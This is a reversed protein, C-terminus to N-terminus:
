ITIKGMQVKDWLNTHIKVKHAAYVDDYADEGALQEYKASLYQKKKIKTLLEKDLKTVQKQKDTMESCITDVDEKIQAEEDEDLILRIKDAEITYLNDKICTEMALEEATNVLFDGNTYVRWFAEPDDEDYVVAMEEITEELVMIYYSLEQLSIEQDDIEVATEDLHESFVFDSNQEYQYYSLRISGILLLMLLVVATVSSKKKKKMM